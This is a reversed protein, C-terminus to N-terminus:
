APRTTFTKVGSSQWASLLKTDDSAAVANPDGGVSLGAACHVADYGRLSHMGALDSAHRMLSDDLAIVAFSDWYSELEVLVSRLQDSTIRQLRHAQHLAAATEVFLLRTSVPTDSVDWLRRSAASGPEKVLLPVFASSDWYVIM